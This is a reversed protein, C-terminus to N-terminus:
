LEEDPGSSSVGNELFERLKTLSNGPRFVLPGRFPSQAAKSPGRVQELRIAQCRRQLCRHLRATQGLHLIRQVPVTRAPDLVLDGGSQAMLGPDAHLPIDRAGLALASSIVSRSTAYTPHKRTNFSSKLWAGIAVFNRMAGFRRSPGCASMLEIKVTLVRPRQLGTAYLKVSAATGSAM